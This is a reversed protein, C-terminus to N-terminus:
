KGKFKLLDEVCKDYKEISLNFNHDKRKISLMANCKKYFGERINEM